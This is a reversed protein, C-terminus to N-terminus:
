NISIKSKRMKKMMMMMMATKIVNIKEFESINEESKLIDFSRILAM